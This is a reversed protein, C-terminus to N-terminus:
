YNIILILFYKGTTKDRKHKIGAKKFDKWKIPLHDTYVETCGDAFHEVVQIRKAKVNM